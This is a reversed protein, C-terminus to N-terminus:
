KSKRYVIMGEEYLKQRLYVALDLAEEYADKLARRGNKPMVPRGYLKLGYVRRIEMDRQVLLSIDVVPKKGKPQKKANREKSGAPTDPSTSNRTETNKRTKSKVTM